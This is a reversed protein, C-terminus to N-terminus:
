SSQNENATGGLVFVCRVYELSILVMLWGLLGFHSLYLCTGEIGRGSVRM